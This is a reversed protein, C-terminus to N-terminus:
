KAGACRFPSAADRAADMLSNFPVKNRKPGSPTNGIVKDYVSKPMLTVHLGSEGTTNESGTVTGILDGPKISGRLRMSNYNIDKLTMVYTQGNIPNKLQIDMIGLQYDKSNKDDSQRGTHLITGAMAPLATVAATVGPPAYIHIGDHAALGTAVPKHTAM